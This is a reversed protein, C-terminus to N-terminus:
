GTRHLLGALRTALPALPRRQFLNRGICIGAAGARLAAEVTAVLADDGGSRLGGGILVPVPTTRVVARFGDETGPYSTKVVDAGLDATARCAHQLEAVSADAPKKVYTMCLLPLGVARAEDVARGLDALM